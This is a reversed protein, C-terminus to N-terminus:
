RVSLLQKEWYKLYEAPSVDPSLGRSKMANITAPFHQTLFQRAAIRPDEPIEGQDRTEEIWRNLTNRLANLVPRSDPDSALNHLEHPDSQLNYLEEGPRYPAMFRAQDPTLKGQAYLVQMLTLVPYQRMKYLNTLTYPFNPYFNRIYKFRKTRVCRIRDYTEDCRDRAAFICDRKKANPGLFPQGQMETPVEIGVLSMCTPGFDIASVLDDVVTAPKIHGPWRIILPVHIGEEYLFQKGRIHPRGNDGFFFVLTNDALGDEELRRLVQGVKKDLVQACELYDAWDRRSVPHDPYYPPIEVKEPDIPNEPDRRFNRHTEGFNVHAFFPQGPKRERWDTGDFPRKAEFNFDTKGPREYSGGACNSTFYGADRFYDTIVKVDPPLPKRDPTRHQHAGITTQYMGTMFASRSPSCVPAATFASTYRAGESALRDINPTKVLPHGYCGLDPCFDEAILWLVNPRREEVASFGLPSRRAVLAAGGAGAVCKKVFERRNMLQRRLLNRNTQGTRSSARAELGHIMPLIGM